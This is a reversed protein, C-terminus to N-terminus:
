IDDRKFRNDYVTKLERLKKIKETISKKEEEQEKKTAIYYDFHSWASLNNEIDAILEECLDDANVEFTELKENDQREIIYSWFETIVLIFDWGEADFYVCQPVTWTDYYRIFADLCDHHVSNLYSAVGSWSKTSKREKITVTTWGCSPTSLM